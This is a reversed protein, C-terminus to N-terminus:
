RDSQRQRGSGLPGPQRAQDRNVEAQRRKKEAAFGGLDALAPSKDDNNQPTSRILGQYRGSILSTGKARFHNWATFISEPCPRNANWM